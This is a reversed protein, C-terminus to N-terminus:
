HTSGAGRVTKSEHAQVFAVAELKASEWATSLKLAHRFTATQDLPVDLSEGEIGTLYRRVADDYEICEGEATKYVVDTEMVAVILKDDTAAPQVRKTVMTTVILSDGVVARTVAIDYDPSVAEAQEIRETMATENEPEAFKVGDIWVSPMTAVGFRTGRDAFQQSNSVYVPDNANPWYLHNGITVVRENGLSATINRLAEEVPKCPVCLDNTFHEVIVVRDQAFPNASSPAFKAAQPPCDDGPNVPDDEGGCGVGLALMALAACVSALILAARSRRRPTRNSAFEM